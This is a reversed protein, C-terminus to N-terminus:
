RFNASLLIHRYFNKEYVAKPTFHSLGPKILLKIPVYDLNFLYIMVILLRKKFFLWVLAPFSLNIVM